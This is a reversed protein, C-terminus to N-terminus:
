KFLKDPRVIYVTNKREMSPLIEDLPSIGVGFSYGSPADSKPIRGGSLDTSYYLSMRAAHAVLPRGEKNKGVYFMVHGHNTFIDGPVIKDKIGPDKSTGIVGATGKYYNTMGASPKYITLDSKKNTMFNYNKGIKEAKMNYGNAEWVANTFTSCDYVGVPTNGQKYPMKGRKTTPAGPPSDMLSASIATSALKQQFPSARKWDAPDMGAPVATSGVVPPNGGTSATGQTASVSPVLRDGGGDSAGSSLIYSGGAVMGLIMLLMYFTILLDVITVVIIKIDVITIIGVLAKRVGKHHKLLFNLAGKGLIGGYLVLAANIAHKGGVQATSKATSKIDGKSASSGVKVLNKSYAEVMAPILHYFATLGVRVAILLPVVIILGM